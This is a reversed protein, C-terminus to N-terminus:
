AEGGELAASIDGSRSPPPPPPPPTKSSRKRSRSASRKPEIKTEDAVAAASSLEFEPEPDKTPKPEAKAADQAAKRKIRSVELHRRVPYPASDETWTVTSGPAADLKYRQGDVLADLLPDGLDVVGGSHVWVRDSETMFQEPWHLCRGDRVKFHRAPYERTQEM